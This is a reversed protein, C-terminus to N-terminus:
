LFVEKTNKCSSINSEECLKKEELVRSLNNAEVEEELTKQKLFKLSKIVEDIRHSLVIEDMHEKVFFIYRTNYEKDLIAMYRLLDLKDGTKSSLLFYKKELTKLKDLEQNKIKKSNNIMSIKMVNLKEDRLEEHFKKDIKEILEKNSDEKNQFDKKKKAELFDIIAM